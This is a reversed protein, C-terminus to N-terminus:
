YSILEQSLRQYTQKLDGDSIKYNQRDSLTIETICDVGSLKGIPCGRKITVTQNINNMILLPFWLFKYLKVM